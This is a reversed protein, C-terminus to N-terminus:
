QSGTKLIIRKAGDRELQEIMERALREGQEVPGRLTRKLYPRGSVDAVFATLTVEGAEIRAYAGVPAHCGPHLGALVAREIEVAQATQEDHVRRVLEVTEADDARTQIALAGQAPAPIFVQPDFVFGIREALGLRELGARALIVADYQGEEMKRIRTEVNGRISAVELGPRLCKIQATRRPSSTGIIAGDAIADLSRAGSRCVMVDEPHERRFVAAACLGATMQTPLDKFSHVAADARKELLARELESTFFGVGEIKWLPLDTNQDGQTTVRVLEVELGPTAATLADAVLKCQALALRSARTAIRLRRM